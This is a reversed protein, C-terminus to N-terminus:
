KNGIVTIAFRIADKPTFGADIHAEYLIKNLKAIEAAEERALAYPDECCECPEECYCEECKPEDPKIEVVHIEAGEAKAKEILSKIVKDM